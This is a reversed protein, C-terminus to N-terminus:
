GGFTERYKREERGDSRRMSIIRIVGQRWMWVVTFLKGDLRATSKWREEDNRRSPQHLVNRGDFFRFASAFDLSREDLTKQRKDERWEFEMM